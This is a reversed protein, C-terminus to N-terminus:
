AGLYRARWLAQVTSAGSAGALEIEVVNVGPEFPWFDYASLLGFQNTGDNKVVSKPAGTQNGPRTDIVIQEGAGLTGNWALARGTTHNTLTLMSGPGTVVWVPFTAVDGVNTISSTGFVQSTGLQLPFFPFFTASAAGTTWSHTSDAIDAWYPDSAVFTVVALQKGPWRTQDGEDGELGSVYGCTLERVTTDPGTIRLRGDGRTPDFRRLWTRILSRLDSETTAQFMIPVLVHGADHLVSRHRNGPQLPVIEDTRRIPPMYLGTPGRPVDAGDAGGSLNHAGGNNEIWQYLETM